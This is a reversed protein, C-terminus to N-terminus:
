LELGGSRVAWAARPEHGRGPGEAHRREPVRERDLGLHVPGTGHARRRCAAQARHFDTTRFINSSDLEISFQFPFLTRSLHAQENAARCVHLGRLPKPLHQGADEVLVPVEAPLEGEAEAEEVQAARAGAERLRQQLLRAAHM